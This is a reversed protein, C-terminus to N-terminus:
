VSMAPSKGSGEMDKRVRLLVERIRRDATQADKLGTLRAVQDLTLDEEYRLRVLLREYSPLRKLSRALADQQQRNTALAEPDPATDRLREEAPTVGDPEPELREFRLSRTSLLWLQRPSLSDRIRELSESFQSATLEPFRAVALAFTDDSSRGQEYHLRFIEQDVAPLRAVSQFVRHRGMESRRWDLCLNRVVARLWTAFTAPGDPRFRRLRRYGNQRLQECVFVFCDAVPDDATEFLRVVQLVLPSYSELFESWASQPSGSSLGELVSALRGEARKWEAPAM